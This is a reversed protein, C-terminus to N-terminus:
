PNKFSFHLPSITNNKIVRVQQFKSPCFAMLKLVYVLLESLKMDVLCYSEKSLYSGETKDMGKNM